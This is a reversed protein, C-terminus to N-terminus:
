NLYKAKFAEIKRLLYTLVTGLAQLFAHSTLDQQGASNVVPDALLKTFSTIAGAEAFAKQNSPNREYMRRIADAAPGRVEMNQILQVLDPIRDSKRIREQNKYNDHVINSLAELIKRQVSDEQDKQFLLQMLAEIAGCDRIADQVKSKPSALNGFLQIVLQALIGKRRLLKTLSSFFMEKQKWVDSIVAEKGRKSKTNTVLFKLAHQLTLEFSNGNSDKSDNSDNSDIIIKINDAIDVKLAQM